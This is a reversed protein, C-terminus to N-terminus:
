ARERMQDSIRAHENRYALYASHHSDDPDDDGTSHAEVIIDAADEAGAARLVDAIAEVEHCSMGTLAECDGMLRAVDALRTAAQELSFGFAHTGAM